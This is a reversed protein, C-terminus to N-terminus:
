TYFPALELVAYSFGSTLLLARSDRRWLLRYHGARIPSSRSIVATRLERFLRVMVITVRSVHNCAIALWKGDPSFRMSVYARKCDPIKIRQLEKGSDLDSQVLNTAGDIWYMRNEIHSIRGHNFKGPVHIQENLNDLCPFLTVHRSNDRWSRVERYLKGSNCFIFRQRSASPILPWNYTTNSKIEWTGSARALIYLIVTNRYIAIATRQVSEEPAHDIFLEKPTFRNPFAFFTWFKGQENYCVLNKELVTLWSNSDLPYRRKAYADADPIIEWKTKDDIQGIPAKYFCFETSGYYGLELVRYPVHATKSACFALKANEDSWPSPDYWSVLGPMPLITSKVRKEHVKLKWVMTHQAVLKPILGPGFAYAVLRETLIFGGRPDEKLSM